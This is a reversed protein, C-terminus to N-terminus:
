GRPACRHALAALGPVHWVRGDREDFYYGAVRREALPRGCRPCCTDNECRCRVRVSRLPGAGPGFRGRGRYEGCAACRHLGGSSALTGLFPVLAGALFARRPIDRGETMSGIETSGAGPALGSHTM